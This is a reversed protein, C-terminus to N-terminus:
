ECELKEIISAAYEGNKARVQIAQWAADWKRSSEMIQAILDIAQQVAQLHIRTYAHMCTHIYTYYVQAHM